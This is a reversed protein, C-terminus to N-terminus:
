DVMTCDVMTCNQHAHTFQIRLKRNEASLFPGWHPRRSSYGMQKLIHTTHESIGQNYHTTIQTVRAKRDDQALRGMRRVDVLCKQGCLWERYIRSINKCSFGPLDATKSISLGAQRAGLVMGVEFDGLGGEKGMRISPKFCTASPNCLSM